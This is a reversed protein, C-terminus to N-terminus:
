YAWPKPPNMSIFGAAIKAADSKKKDDDEDLLPFRDGLQKRWIKSAESPKDHAVAKSAAEALGAIAEQFRKKREDSLRDTLTDYPTVPNIVTFVPTVLSRIAEATKALCADDREDARFANNALVTLILGNALKGIKQTQYDQWGKLFRVVRRLQEGHVKNVRDRFWDTIAKPDTKRWQVDGKVALLYDSNLTAYSPLDLHYQGAYRLRVCTAKDIPPENTHGDVADVIWGHVTEARPWKSSDHEDLHQLYIGDDLDFEGDLPVVTTVMAYSGQAHFKPPTVELKEIFHKRIRRRVADRSQQLSAKQSASLAITDHYTGFEKHLNAM